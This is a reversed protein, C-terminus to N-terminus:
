TLKVRFLSLSLSLSLARSLPISLFSSLFLLVSARLSQCLPLYM